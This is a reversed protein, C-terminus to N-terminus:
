FWDTIQTGDGVYDLLNIKKNKKLYNVFHQHNYEMYNEDKKFRRGMKELNEKADNDFNARRAQYVAETFHQLAEGKFGVFEAFKEPELIKIKEKYPVNSPVDVQKLAYVPVFLAM